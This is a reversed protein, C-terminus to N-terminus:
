FFTSTVYDHYPIVVGYDRYFQPSNVMIVNLCVTHVYMQYHDQGMKVYMRCVNRHVHKDSRRCLKVLAPMNLVTDRFCWVSNPTPVDDSAAHVTEDLAFVERGAAFFPSVM